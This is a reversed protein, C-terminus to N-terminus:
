QKVPIIPSSIVKKKKEYDQFNYKVWMKIELDSAVRAYDFEMPYANMFEALEDDQLKTLSSVLEPTYRTDIFKQKENDIIQDQFKRLSKYKKSFKQYVSTVPSFVSKTQEYEFAKKYLSARDASDKQYETPGRKIIVPKLSSSRINLYIKLRMLDDGARLIHIKRTYGIHTIILADGLKAEISFEGKENSLCGQHTQLNEISVSVLAARNFSDLVIGKVLIQAQVSHYMCGLCCLILVFKKM